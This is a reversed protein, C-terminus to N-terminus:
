NVIEISSYLKLLQVYNCWFDITVRPRDDPAKVWYLVDLLVDLLGWIQPTMRNQDSPGLNLESYM